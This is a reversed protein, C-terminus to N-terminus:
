ESIILDAKAAAPRRLSGLRLTLGRQAIAGTSMQCPRPEHGGSKKEHRAEAATQVRGPNTRQLIGGGMARQGSAAAQPRQQRWADACLSTQEEATNGGPNFYARMTIELCAAFGVGKGKAVRKLACADYPDATARQQQRKGARRGALSVRTFTVMELRSKTAWLKRGGLTRDGETCREREKYRSLLLNNSSFASRLALMAVTM